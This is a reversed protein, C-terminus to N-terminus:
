IFLLQLKAIFGEHLMAASNNTNLPKYINPIFEHNLNVSTTPKGAKENEAGREIDTRLM